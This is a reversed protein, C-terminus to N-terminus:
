SGSGNTFTWQQSRPSRGATNRAYVAWYLLGGDDPLGTVTYGTVDGLWGNFLFEGSANKVYLRYDSAGLTENWRFTVSTGSNNSGDPPSVLVPAPPPTIGLAFGRKEGNLEGYGVIQSSDNIERAFNLIWGSSSDILDNLDRVGNQLDFIFAHETAGEEARDWMIGVMKGHSNIGYIEGYPFGSPMTIKVPASSKDPWYYPLSQNPAAIVHGGILGDDNIVVAYWEGDAYAPDVPLVQMGNEHDDIFPLFNWNGDHAIGVTEGYNNISYAISFGNAWEPWDTTLTGVDFIGDTPNYYFAHFPTFTGTDNPIDASGVVEEYLNIGYATSSDGRVNTTQNTLAGIETVTLSRADWLVASQNALNNHSFGTAFGNDNVAWASSEGSLAPLLWAGNTGDWVFAQRDVAEGTAPDTNFFRGVVEGLNNIGM